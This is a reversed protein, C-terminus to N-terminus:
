GASSAAAMGEAVERAVTTALGVGLLAQLPTKREVTKEWRPRSGIQFVETRRWVQAMTPDAEDVSITGWVKRVESGRTGRSEFRLSWSLYANKYHYARQSDDFLEIGEGTIATWDRALADDLQREVDRFDAQLKSPM